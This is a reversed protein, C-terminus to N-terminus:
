IPLVRRKKRARIRAIEIAAIIPGYEGMQPYSQDHAHWIRQAAGKVGIGPRFKKERHVETTVVAHESDIALGPLSERIERLLRREAMVKVDGKSTLANVPIWAGVRVSTEPTKYVSLRVWGGSPSRSVLEAPESFAFPNKNFRVELEYRDYETTQFDPEIVKRSEGEFRKLSHAELQRAFILQDFRFLSLVKKENEYFGEWHGTSDRAFEPYVADPLFEVGTAILVRRFEEQLSTFVEDSFYANRLAFLDAAVQLASPAKDSWAEERYLLHGLGRILRGTSDSPSSQVPIEVGRTKPKLVKRVVSNWARASDSLFPVRNLRLHTTRRIREIWEQEFERKWEGKDEMSKVALLLKEYNSGGLEFGPTGLAKETLSGQLWLSSDPTLCEMRARSHRNLVSSSVGWREFMRLLIGGSELGFLIRGTFEQRERKEPMILVREGQKALLFAAVWSALDEGFVAFDYKGQSEM